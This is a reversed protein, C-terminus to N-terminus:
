MAALGERKRVARGQSRFVPSLPSASVTPELVASPGCGPAAVIETISIREENTFHSLIIGVKPRRGGPSTSKLTHSGPGQRSMQRPQIWAKSGATHGQLHSVKGTGTEHRESRGSDAGGREEGLAQM